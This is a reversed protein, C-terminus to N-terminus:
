ITLIKEGAAPWGGKCDDNILKLSYQLAGCAFFDVKQSGLVETLDYGVVRQSGLVQTLDYGVVESIWTSPDFRVWSGEAVWTSPDFRVWSGRLGM